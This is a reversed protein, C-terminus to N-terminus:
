VKGGVGCQGDIGSAVLLAPGTNLLAPSSNRVWELQLVQSLLGQVEGLCCVLVLGIFPHSLGLTTIILSIGGNRM